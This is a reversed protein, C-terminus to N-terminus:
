NSEDFTKHVSTMLILICFCKLLLAFSVCIIRMALSQIIPNFALVTCKALRFSTPKRELVIRPWSLSKAPSSSECWRRARLWWMVVMVLLDWSWWSCRIGALSYTCSCCLAKRLSKKSSSRGPIKWTFVSKPHRHFVQNHYRMDDVVACLKLM